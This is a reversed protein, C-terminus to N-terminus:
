NGRVSTYEEECRWCMYVLKGSVSVPFLRESKTNCCKCVLGPADKKQFPYTVIFGFLSAGDKKARSWANKMTNMMKVAGLFVTIEAVVSM